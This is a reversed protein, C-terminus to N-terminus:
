DLDNVLVWIGFIVTLKHKSEIFITGQYEHSISTPIKKLEAANM